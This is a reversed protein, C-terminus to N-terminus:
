SPTSIVVNNVWVDGTHDGFILNFLANSDTFQKNDFTYSYHTWTSTLLPRQVFYDSYSTKNDLVFFMTGGNASKADFSINTAKGRMLPIGSQHFSVYWDHNPDATTVRIHAYCFTDIPSSIRTCEQTETGSANSGPGSNHWVWPTYRPEFSPNQIANLGAATIINAWHYDPNGSKMLDFYSYWLIMLPHANQLSSHLMTQMQSITPYPCISLSPPRGCNYGPYPLFSHAQLVMAYGSVVENSGSKNDQLVRLQPAITAPGNIALAPHTGVPYFDQAIVTAIDATSFAPKTTHKVLATNITATGAPTSEVLLRPHRNDMSQIKDTFTQLHILDQAPVEDGVYYGWLGANTSVLHIIYNLFITDNACPAYSLSHECSSALAPYLMRAPQSGNWWVPNNLALIVKMQLTNALNLYDVMQSANASLSDYNLVLTFGGAAIRTLRKMCHQEM